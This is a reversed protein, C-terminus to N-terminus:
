ERRGALIFPETMWTEKIDSADVGVFLRRRLEWEWEKYLECM